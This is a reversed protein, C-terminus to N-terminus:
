FPFTDDEQYNDDSDEDVKSSCKPCNVYYLESALVTSNPNSTMQQHVDRYQEIRGEGGCESCPIYTKRTFFIEEEIKPDIDFDPDNYDLSYTYSM